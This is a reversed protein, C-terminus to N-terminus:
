QALIVRYFVPPNTAAGLDPQMVPSGTGLTISGVSSWTANTGLTGSRQLQNTKNPETTWTVQVNNSVISINTIRFSTSPDLPDTGALYDQLNSFGSGDADDGALSNDAAEGTPHNFYALMWWDPIGDGDSDLDAIKRVQIGSARANDIIPTFSMNLQMASVTCTFVLSIPINQGGAVKYIDFNTLVQQGQLFVNFVRANTTSWYTEAEDLTTEYVGMPCDFLYSFGSPATSYRERQYLPYVSTCVGSIANDVYGATDNGSYGFSGPAYAQDAIWVNAACDTVNSPNGPSIRALYAGPVNIVRVTVTPITSLNGSSDTAQASITHLGNLVTQTNFSYSWNTTGSALTWAGGDISVEVRAVAVVDSATGAVFVTGTVTSDDAPTFLTITPPIPQYVPDAIKRVRIASVRANTDWLTPVGTFDIELQGNLVTNTFTAIVATNSGGAAAIIDYNSLVQQGQISVNFLRQGVAYWFTEANYLSTEYTGDPCDFFASFTVGLHESQFMVPDLTDAIVNSIM